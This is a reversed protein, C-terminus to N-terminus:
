RYVEKRHGVSLVLIMITEDEIQCIIRYDGVRYRWFLGLDGKLARGSKRPNDNNELGYLFKVIKQQTQKDLKSLEKESKKNFNISWAL